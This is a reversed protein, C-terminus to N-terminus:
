QTEEGGPQGPLQWGLPLVSASAPFSASPVPQARQLPSPVAIGLGCGLADGQRRDEELGCICAFIPCCPLCPSQSWMLSREPVGLSGRGINRSTGIGLEPSGAQVCARMGSVM